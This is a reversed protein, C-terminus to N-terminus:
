KTRNILKSNRMESNKDVFEAYMEIFFLLFIFYLCLLEYMIRLVISRNWLVINGAM